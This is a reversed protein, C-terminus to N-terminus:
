QHRLFRRQLALGQATLMRPNVHRGYHFRFLFTHAGQDATVPDLVADSAPDHWAMLPSRLLTFRAVQPSSDLAFVEPCVIGLRASDIEFMSWDMLPREKGDNARILEGGPIGDIRSDVAAPLPLCLKLVKRRDLWHVGLRLEVASEGGYVRWEAQLGATEM